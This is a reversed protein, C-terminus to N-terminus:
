IHLALVFPISILSCFQTGTQVSHLSICDDSLVLDAPGTINLADTEKVHVRFKTGSLPCLEFNVPDRNM